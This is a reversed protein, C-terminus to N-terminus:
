SQRANLYLNKRLTTVTCFSIIAVAILAPMRASSILGFELHALEWNKVRLVMLSQFWKWCISANNFGNECNHLTIQRNLHRQYVNAVWSFYLCRTISDQCSYDFRGMTESATYTTGSLINLTGNLHSKLESPSESTTSPLDISLRAFYDDLKKWAIEFNHDFVQITSYCSQQKEVFTHKLSSCSKSM